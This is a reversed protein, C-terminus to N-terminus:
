LDPSDGGSHKNLYREYKILDRIRLGAAELKEKSHRLATAQEETLPPLQRIKDEYMDEDAARLLQPTTMGPELTATGMSLSVGLEKLQAYGPRDILEDFRSRLRGVILQIGKEDTEAIEGYEDGGLHGGYANIAQEFPSLRESKKAKDPDPQSLSVMDGHRTDTGTRLVHALEGVLLKTSDIVDDGADHSITDNILKFFNIDAFLVSLPKGTRHAYDVQAEANDHWEGRDMLEHPAPLSTSEHAHM